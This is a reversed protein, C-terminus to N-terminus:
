LTLGFLYHLLQEKGTLLVKLDPQVIKLRGLCRNGSKSGNGYVLRRVPPQETKVIPNTFKYPYGTIRNYGYGGGETRNGSGGETVGEL